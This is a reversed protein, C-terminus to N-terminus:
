HRKKGAWAMGTVSLVATVAYIGVGADFTKPSDTKTDTTTSPYYYYSNSSWVATLTVGDSYDVRVEAGDGAATEAFIKSKVEESSLPGAFLVQTGTCNLVKWGKFTYGSRTPTPLEFNEKVMRITVKKGSGDAYDITFPVDDNNENDGTTRDVKVIENTTGAAEAAAVATAYDSYYNYKGASTRVEYALGDALFTPNVPTSFTGGSVTVNEKIMATLTEGALGTEYGTAGNTVTMEGEHTVNKVVLISKSPKAIAGDKGWLGMDIRGKITGTTDVTVSTGAPYASPWFSVDLAVKGAAATISTSGIVNVEGCNNSVVTHISNTGKTADLTMDKLTLNTYNQIIFSLGSNNGIITGNLLKVSESGQLFQFCQNKTNASGALDKTVTYTHGGFNITINKHTDGIIIGGGDTVDAFLEILANDGSANVAEALTTYHTTGIKAVHITCNDDGTCDAAWSVTCLGLAMVLALITALLKKMM